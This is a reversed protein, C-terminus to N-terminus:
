LFTILLQIQIRVGGEVNTFVFLKSEVVDYHFPRKHDMEPVEWDMNIEREAALGSGHLM